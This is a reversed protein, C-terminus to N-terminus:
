STWITGSDWLHGDDWRLAAPGAAGTLLKFQVTAVLVPENQDRGAEARLYLVERQPPAYGDTRIVFTTRRDFSDRINRGTGYWGIAM